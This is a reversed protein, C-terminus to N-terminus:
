KIRLGNRKIEEIFLNSRKFDKLNFPHIELHNNFDRLYPIIKKNDHFRVGSFDKSALAVDIDSWEDAKNKAYSGFMYAYSISIKNEELKEILEKIEKIIRNKKYPM